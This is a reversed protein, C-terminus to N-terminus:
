NHGLALSSQGAMKAGFSGTPNALVQWAQMVTWSRGRGEGAEKRQKGCINVEYGAQPLIEGVVDLLLSYSKSLNFLNTLM